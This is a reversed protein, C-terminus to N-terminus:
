NVSFADVTKYNYRFEWEGANKAKGYNFGVEVASDLDDNLGLAQAIEAGDGNVVYSAHVLLPRGALKTSYDAILQTENYADPIGTEAANLDFAFQGLAITLKNGSAMKYTYGAQGGTLYSDDCSSCEDLNFRGLTAFFGNREYQYALGEPNLDGDWLIQSNKSAYFPTPMKGAIVTSGDAPTWAVFARDLGFDKTSAFGDLTQNTSTPNDGGSALRLGFKITDNVQADLKIRARLRSRDRDERGEQDTNEFRYRVDGSLKISDSWNSEAASASYSISSVTLLIILSVFIQKFQM